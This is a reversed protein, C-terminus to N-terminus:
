DCGGPWRAPLGPPLRNACLSESSCEGISRFELTDRCEGGGSDEPARAASACWRAFGSPDAARRLPPSSSSRRCSPNIQLVAAQQRKQLELVKLADFSQLSVHCFFWLGCSCRRIGSRRPFRCRCGLALFFKLLLALTADNRVTVHM